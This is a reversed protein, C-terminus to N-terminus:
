AAKQVLTVNGVNDFVCMYRQGSANLDVHYRTPDLQSSVVLRVKKLISALPHKQRASVPGIFILLRATRVTTLEM